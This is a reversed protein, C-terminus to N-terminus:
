ELEKCYPEAAPDNWFVERSGTAPYVIDDVGVAFRYYYCSGKVLFSWGAEGEPIGSMVREPIREGPEPHRFGSPPAPLSTLYESQAELVEAANGMNAPEPAECGGLVFVVAVWFAGKM